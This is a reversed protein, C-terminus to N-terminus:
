VFVEKTEPQSLWKDLQKELRQKVQEINEDASVETEVMFYKKTWKKGYSQEESIGKGITLKVIKM